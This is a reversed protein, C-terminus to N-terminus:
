LPAKERSPWSQVTSVSRRSFSCGLLRAKLEFNGENGDLKPWFRTSWMELTKFFGNQYMTIGHNPTCGRPWCDTYWSQFNLSKSIHLVLDSGLSALFALSKWKSTRKTPHEKERLNSGVTYASRRSFSCGQLRAKLVSIGENEDIEPWFRTSWM